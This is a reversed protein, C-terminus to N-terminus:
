VSEQLNIESFPEDKTYFGTFGLLSLFFCLILLVVIVNSAIDLFFVIDGFCRIFGQLHYDQNSVKNYITHFDYASPLLTKFHLLDSFKLKMM